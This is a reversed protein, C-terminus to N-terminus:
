ATIMLLLKKKGDDQALDIQHHLFFRPMSNSIQECFVRKTSKRKVWHHDQKPNAPIGQMTSGTAANTTSKETFDVPEYMWYGVKGEDHLLRSVECEFVSELKYSHCLDCSSLFPIRSLLSCASMVYAVHVERHFPYWLRWMLCLICLSMWPRWWSTSIYDQAINCALSYVTWSAHM